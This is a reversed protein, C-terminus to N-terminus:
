VARAVVPVPQVARDFATVMVASALVTSNM